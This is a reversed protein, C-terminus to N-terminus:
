FSLATLEHPYRSIVSLLSYQMVTGLVKRGRNYELYRLTIREISLRHFTFVIVVPLKCLILTLLLGSKAMAAAFCIELLSYM